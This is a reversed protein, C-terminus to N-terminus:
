PVLQIIVTSICPQWIGDSCFTCSYACGQSASLNFYYQDLSYPLLNYDVSEQADRESDRSVPNVHINGKRDRFAIGPCTGCSDLDLIAQALLAPRTDGFCVFDVVRSDLLEKAQSEAHPGGIAVYMDEKVAKASEALQLCIPATPTMSYLCLADARRLAASLSEPTERSFHVYEVNGGQLRIASALLLLGRAIAIKGGALPIHTIRETIEDSAIRRLRHITRHRPLLPHEYVAIDIFLVNM